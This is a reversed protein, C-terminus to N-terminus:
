EVAWAKVICREMGFRRAFCEAAPGGLSLERLWFHCCVHDLERVFIGLEIEYLADV